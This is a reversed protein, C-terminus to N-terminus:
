FFIFEKGNKNMSEVYGEDAIRYNQKLEDNKEKYLQVHRLGIMAKKREM